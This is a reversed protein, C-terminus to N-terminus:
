QIRRRLRTDLYNVVEVPSMGLELMTQVEQMTVGLEGAALVLKLIAVNIAERAESPLDPITDNHM